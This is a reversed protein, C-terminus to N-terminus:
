AISTVSKLHKKRFEKPTCNYHQKFERAFFMPSSFGCEDAINKIPENSFSLMTAAKEMRCKIIYQGPSTQLYQAFTRTLTRLSVNCQVSLEYRTIKYANKRIISLATELTPPFKNVLSRQSRIEQLFEFLLLELNKKSPNNKITNGIKELLTAIKEPISLKIISPDYPALLDCIASQILTNSLLLCYKKVKSNPGAQMLLPSRRAILLDGPVATFQSDKTKILLEGELIFNFSIYASYEKELSWNKNWLSEGFAFCHLINEKSNEELKSNIYFTENMGIQDNPKLRVTHRKYFILEEDYTTDITNM